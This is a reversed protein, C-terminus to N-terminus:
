NKKLIINVPRQPESGLPNVTVDLGKVARLEDAKQKAEWSLPNIKYAKNYYYSAVDFRQLWEYIIGLHRYADSLNPSHEIARNFYYIASDVYRSEVKYTLKIEYGYAYRFFADGFGPHIRLAQKMASMGKAVLSDKIKVDQEKSARIVLESGYHLQNQASRSGTTLDTEFLTLRDAWAPNRRVTIVSYVVSVVLLITLFALFNWKRIIEKFPISPMESLKTLVLRDVLIVALMCFGLSPAFLNREAFIGGRLVLFGMMPVM